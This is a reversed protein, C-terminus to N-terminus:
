RYLFHLEPSASLLNAVSRFDGFLVDRLTIKKKAPQIIKAKKGLGLMLGMKEKVDQLSALGDILGYSLAQEGTFVQGKALPALETETLNRETCIAKTFQGYVNMVLEYFYISDQPSFSKYPSGADKYEGSKIVNLEFGLKEMTRKWQPFDMIVGISGTISSPMAFISDAAIALYYGGSAALSSMSAFIPKGSEKKAKKVAYYMEQSVTTGGGPSNIYLIIGKVSSRSSYDELLQIFPQSEMLVGEVPIIAIRDGIDASVQETRLLSIIALIILGFIIGVAIKDTRRM